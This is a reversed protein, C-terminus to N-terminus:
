LGMVKEDHLFDRNTGSGEWLAVKTDVAATYRGKLSSSSPGDVTLAVNARVLGEVDDVLGTLRIINKGDSRGCKGIDKKAHVGSADMSEAVVAIPGDITLEAGSRVLEEAQLSM